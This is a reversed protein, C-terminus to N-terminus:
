CESVRSTKGSPPQRQRHGSGLRTSLPGARLFHLTFPPIHVSPPFAHQPPLVFGVRSRLQENGDISAGCSCPLLTSVEELSTSASPLGWIMNLSGTGSRGIDGPSKTSALGTYGQRWRIKTLSDPCDHFFSGSLRVRNWM